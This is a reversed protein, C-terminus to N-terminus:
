LGEEEALINYGQLVGNEILEFKVKNTKLHNVNRMDGGTVIFKDINFQRKAYKAFNIVFGEIMNKTGAEISTITDYGIEKEFIEPIKSKINTTSFLGRISNVVNPAIVVGRIFKNEVITAWYATGLCFGCARGYNTKLFLNFALIDTGIEVSEFQKLDFMNNFDKKSFIRPAVHYHTKLGSYYKKWKDVNAATGFFVKDVRYGSIDKILKKYSAGVDYVLSEVLTEKTFIGVKICTNGYDIVLRM